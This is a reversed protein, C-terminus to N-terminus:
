IRGLRLKSVWGRVERIASRHAESRRRVRKTGEGREPIIVDNYLPRVRDVRAGEQEVSKLWREVCMTRPASEQRLTQWVRSLEM